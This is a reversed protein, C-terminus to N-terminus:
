HPVKKNPKLSVNVPKNINLAEAKLAAKQEDTLIYGKCKWNLEAGTRNNKIYGAPIGDLHAVYFGAKEGNKDGETPIRHPKGDMIPHEGSVIAGLSILAAKFEDETKLAKEQPQVQHEPLWAKIKEIPVGPNAYWCKQM